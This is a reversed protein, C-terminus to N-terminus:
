NKILRSLQILLKKVSMNLVVGNELLFALRSTNFYFIREKVNPNYYGLKELLFGRNHKDKYTLVIDYIPYYKSGRKNLRIIKQRIQKNTALYM